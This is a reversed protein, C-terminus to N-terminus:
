GRGRMLVIILGVASLALAGIGVWKGLDDASSGPAASVRNAATGAYDYIPIAAPPNAGSGLNPTGTTPKPAALAAAAAMGATGLSPVSAVVPAAVAAAGGLAGVGLQVETTTQVKPGYAGVLSLAPDIAGITVDKAVEAVKHLAKSLKSM